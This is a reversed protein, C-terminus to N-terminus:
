LGTALHVHDDVVAVELKDGEEGSNVIFYEAQNNINRVQGM